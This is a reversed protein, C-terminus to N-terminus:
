MFGCSSEYPDYNPPFIAERFLEAKEPDHNPHEPRPVIKRCGHRRLLNYTTALAIQKGLKDRHSDVIEKVTVITGSMAKDKFKELFEKEEEETWKARGRNQGRKDLFMSVGEKRFRGWIRRVSTENKIGTIKSIEESSFGQSGLLVCQVRKLENAKEVKSMWEEAEKTAQKPLNARRKMLSM